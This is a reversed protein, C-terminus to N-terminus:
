FASGNGSWFRYNVGVLVSQIRDSTTFPSGLFVDGTGFDAFGYEIKASWNPAFGYEFGGGVTWGTRTKATTLTQDVWDHRARTFAAGGKVYFLANDFAYGVRGTATTLWQYKTRFTANQEVFDHEGSLDAWDFQGELGLVWPGTQLDCGIQGGALAGTPTHSGLDATGPYDWHSRGWGAGANIGIHCGTWNYALPAPAAKVPLRAPLDAAGAPAVTVLLGALALLRANM